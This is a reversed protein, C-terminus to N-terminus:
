CRSRVYEEPDIQTDIVQCEVGFETELKLKLKMSLELEDLSIIFKKFDYYKLFKLQSNTVTKGLLGIKTYEPGYMCDLAMIDFTGEALIAVDTFEQNPVLYLPKHQTKPNFYKAGIPNIYRVQYYILEDKYYFPIVIRNHRCKLKYKNFDLKPNRNKLYKASVEDIENSDLYYSCDIDPFDISRNQFPIFRQIPTFRLEEPIEETENIFISDCIFCHGVSFDKKIYLKRKHKGETEICHKCECIFHTESDPGHNINQVYDKLDLKYVERGYKDQM